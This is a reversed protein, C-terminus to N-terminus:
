AGAEDDASEGTLANRLQGVGQRTMGALEGLKANDGSYFRSDGWGMVQGLLGSRAAKARKLREVEAAARPLDETVIRRRLEDRYSRMVREPGLLKVGQQAAVEQERRGLVGLEDDSHDASVRGVLTREPRAFWAVGDVVPRNGAERARYARVWSRAGYVQLGSGSGDRYPRGFRAKLDENHYGAWRCLGDAVDELAEDDLEAWAGDLLDPSVVVADGFDVMGATSLEVSGPGQHERGCAANLARVAAVSQASWELDGTGPVQFLHDLLHQALPALSAAFEDAEPRTMYVWRRTLTPDDAPWDTGTWTDVYWVLVEPVPKTADYPEINPLRGPHQADWLTCDEGRSPVPVHVRWDVFHTRLEGTRVNLLIRQYHGGGEGRKPRPLKNADVPLPVHHVDVARGRPAVLNAPPALVSETATTTPMLSTGKSM